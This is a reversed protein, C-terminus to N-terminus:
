DHAPKAPAYVAALAMAGTAILFREKLLGHRDPVKAALAFERGPQSPDLLFAREVEKGSLTQVPAGDVRTVEFPRGGSLENLFYMGYNPDPHTGRRIKGGLLDQIILATIEDQGVEPSDVSWQGRHVAACTEFSWSARFLRRFFPFLRDEPWDALPQFTWTSARTHAIVDRVWLPRYIEGKRLIELCAGLAAHAAIYGGQAVRFGQRFQQELDIMEVPCSAVLPFSLPLPTLISASRQFEGSQTMKEIEGFHLVLLVLHDLRGDRNGACFRRCCPFVDSLHTNFEQYFRTDLSKPPPYGRFVFSSGTTM